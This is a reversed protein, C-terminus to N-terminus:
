DAIGILPGLGDRKDYRRLATSYLSSVNGDFYLADRCGLRDRFYVAFDYLSM